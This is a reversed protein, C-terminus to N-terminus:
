IKRIDIVSGIEEEIAIIQKEQKNKFMTFLSLNERLLRGIGQQCRYSQSLIVVALWL